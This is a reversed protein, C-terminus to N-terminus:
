SAPHTGYQIAEAVLVKYILRTYFFMNVQGNAASSYPDRLMTLGAGERRGVYSFNGFILSKKSAAVAEVSESNFVPYGWLTNQGGAPTPVFQFASGTLARYAGDTARKMVWSAGDAYEGKLAYVLKPVDTATAAAAAGLASSTGGALAAAVLLSNETLALARGVYNNLFNIIQADEDELLEASLQIKKTYKVLTMAVQGLAPADRDFAAAEATSVFVNATGNDVPVNVTTARGPMPMVGLPGYLALADRKAVIGNYLGTPVAYGGDASTGINMDTDNSARQERLGSDDGTRLYHAVARAESDGRGIRLLAPAQAGPKSARTAPLAASREADDVAALRDIQADIEGVEGQLRDFEAAEDETMSEQDTLSRMRGVAVGRKAILEERKM